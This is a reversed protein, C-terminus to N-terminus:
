SPWAFPPVTKRSPWRRCCAVYSSPKRQNGCARNSTSPSPFRRTALLRCWPNRKREAFCWCVSTVNLAPRGTHDEQIMAPANELPPQVPHYHIGCEPPFWEGQQFLRNLGTLLEPCSRWNVVLPCSQAQHHEQMERAAQLYTPLDAGRFGFIAQKPDGVVFLRNHASGLFLRRLIRWQLPDTDQFEDIIGFRFRQRLTDVFQDARPNKDPDVGEAVRVIMDQFSLMGHQKKFDCLYDQIHAVTRLTLQTKFLPWDAEQRIEELERLVEKLAAKQPLIADELLAPFAFCKKKHLDTCLQAFTSLSRAETDPHNLWDWLLALKAAAKDPKELCTKGRALITQLRAKLSALLTPWNELAAPKLSEGCEPRLREALDVVRAEWKNAEKRDYGALELVERLHVGYEKRWIRRQVERLAQKILDKDNVLQSRNDQGQEIPFEQLLRRCFGHITFIAAQDFEDVAEQLLTTHPSPIGLEKELANRLRGRLEATAKETYTLLLIQDLKVKEDRVLRIV